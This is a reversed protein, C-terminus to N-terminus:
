QIVEMVRAVLADVNEVAQDGLNPLEPRDLTCVPRTLIGHDGYVSCLRGWYDDLRAISAHVLDADPQPRVPDVFANALSWPESGDRVLCLVLAPPNHAAFSNQKGSPIAAVSARIFAEVAALALKRDDDLNKTLQRTDILAYRYFCASNFGVFGMMGAGTEEEPNLDDVATYFDMEMNVRNTSIAHAVQCAADIDLTINSKEAVMRGFLGIDAAQTGTNFAKVLDTCAKGLKKKNGADPALGDWHAALTEVMRAIEDRGLYLLVNTRDETMKGALAGAFAVAVTCATGDDKGERVLGETLLQALRKTRVGIASRLYREFAPSTRIARKICQSSIRARRYGGFECDKPSNTDDRNLCHPAFNQLMHIEVFM